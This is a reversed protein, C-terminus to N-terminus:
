LVFFLMLLIFQKVKFSPGENGKSSGKYYCKDKVEDFTCSNGTCQNNENISCRSDIKVEKCNGGGNSNFNFCLKTEPTYNGCTDDDYDECKKERKSCLTNDSNFECMENSKLKGARKEICEGNSDVHCYDDLTVDICSDFYHCQHNDTKPHANCERQKTSDYEGCNITTPKCFYKDRDQSNIVFDCKEYSNLTAGEKKECNGDNLICKNDIEIVYCKDPNSLVKACNNISNCNELPFEKCIKNRVRCSTPKLESDFACKKEDGITGSSQCNNGVVNCKSDISIQRCYNEDNYKVCQVNSAGTTIHANCNDYYNECKKEKKICSYQTYDFLCEENDRFSSAQVGDKRICIGENTITCYDDITYEKCVNSTLWFCRKNGSKIFNICSTETDFESCKNKNRPKCKTGELDCIKNVDDLGDNVCNVNPDSFSIQCLPDVEYYQCKSDAQIFHCKNKDEEESIKVCNGDSNIKCNSNININQCIDSIYDVKSCKFGAPSTECNSCENLAMESCEKNKLECKTYDSNYSCKEYNEVTQGTKTTCEGNDNIDCKTSTITVIKCKLSNTEALKIKHCTNGFNACKTLDTYYESYDNCTLAHLKCETKASNMICKNKVEDFTADSKKECQGNNDNYQCKDDITIERCKSNDYICQRTNSVVGKLGGCNSDSYLSCSKTKKECTKLDKSLFCDENEQINETDRSCQPVNSNIELKCGTVINIRKCKNRDSGANYCEYSNASADTKECTHDDKIRCGDDVEIEICNPNEEFKHCQLKYNTNHNGCTSGTLTTCDLEYSVKLFAILAFFFFSKKLM